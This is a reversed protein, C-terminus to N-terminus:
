WFWETKLSYKVSASTSEEQGWLLCAVPPHSVWSDQNQPWARSVSNAKLRSIFFFIGSSVPNSAKKNEKKRCCWEQCIYKDLDPICHLHYFNSQIGHDGMTGMAGSSGRDGMTGVAIRSGMTRWLEWLVEPDMIGEHNGCCGQTGHGEMIGMAHARAGVWGRGVCVCVLKTTNDANCGDMNYSLPCQHKQRRKFLHQLIEKFIM